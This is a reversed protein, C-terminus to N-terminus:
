GSGDTMGSQLNKAKEESTPELWKQLPAYKRGHLEQDQSGVWDRLQDMALPSDPLALVSGLLERETVAEELGSIEKAREFLDKVVRSPWGRVTSIPVPRRLEPEDSDPKQVLKVLCLSVLLPQTDAIATVKSVQGDTMRMCAVQANQYRCATDGSAERLVYDEGDITVPVETATLDFSMESM